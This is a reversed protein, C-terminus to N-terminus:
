EGYNCAPQVPTSGLLLIRKRLLAARHLPFLLPGFTSLLDPLSLAPHETAITTHQSLSGSACSPSRKRKYGSAKDKSEEQSLSSDNAGTKM